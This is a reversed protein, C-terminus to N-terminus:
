LDSITKSFEFAKKLTSQRIREAQRLSQEVTRKVGDAISLRREVEAVIRLQEL